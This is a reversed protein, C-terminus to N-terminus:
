ASREVVGSQAGMVVQNRGARKAEYLADDAEKIWRDIPSGDAVRAAVGASIQVRISEGGDLAIESEAITRRVREAVLQADQPGADPLVVLFEEGGWRAVLDYPRVQDMLLQAITVLVRDGQLHGGRDNVRKFYDVDIMIAGVSTRTRRARALETEARELIAQRNLLGTLGDYTALRELREQTALLNDELSIMRRGIAVRAALERYDVPKTVYDDAGAALGSIVDNKESRATLLITYTHRAIGAGRIRRILELGDMRPMMWDSVVLRSPEEQFRQWAARGDAFAEVEYGSKRLGAELIRRAVTQDEAIIIRM